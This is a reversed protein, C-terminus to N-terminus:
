CCHAVCTAEATETHAAAIENIETSPQLTAPWLHPFGDYPLSEFQRFFPIERRTDEVKTKYYERLKYLSVQNLLM